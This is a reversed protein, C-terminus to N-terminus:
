TFVFLASMLVRSLSATIWKAMDRRSAPEPISSLFIPLLRWCSYCIAAMQPPFFLRNGTHCPARCCHLGIVTWADTAPTLWHRYLSLSYLESEMHGAFFLCDNVLWFKISAVCPLSCSSHGALSVTIVNYTISRSFQPNHPRTNWFPVAVVELTM